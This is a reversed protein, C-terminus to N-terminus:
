RVYAKIYSIKEGNLPKISYKRVYDPIVFTEGHHYILDEFKGEKSFLVIDNEGVVNLVNVSGLNEHTIEKETNFRRTEIFELSHLGTKEEVDSITEFNNYLEEHVFKTDRQFNIVNKAHELNIPRPKGDLDVRAWDWLKFTFIYPTSSIELVLVGKGSCHITGAPILFHDGKKCPIKNIYKEADFEKQGKNAEELEKFMEEKNVGEKLGIYVCPDEKPNVHMIYYSEDQTYNMNFKEKIYENTPHVQLSLNQGGITDLYDFRIPFEAGFKNYVKTGLLYEPKVFLIDISPIEITGNEYKLYLSNEEVVGDFSWAYNVKEPPLNFNKKMWQGGWVGPDFFPVLRFPSKVVDELSNIYLTGDIMKYEEKNNADIFFNYKKINEKKIKDAMRWEFFYGRKFKKSNEEKFNEVQWNAEGLRLRKQIEWRALNLHVLCDYDKILQTPGFGFVIFKDLNSIKNNLKEIKKSDYFDEIRFDNMKGFIRDDTIVEKIKKDIKDKGITFDDLFIVEYGVLKDILKEKLDKYDTGPYCELIIKNYKNLNELILNINNLISGKKKFNVYPNLDYM